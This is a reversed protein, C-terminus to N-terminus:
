VVLYRISTHIKLTLIVSIPCCHWLTIRDIKYDGAGTHVLKSFELKHDDHPYSYVKIVDSVPDVVLKCLHLLFFDGGANVGKLPPYIKLWM